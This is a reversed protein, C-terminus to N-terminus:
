TYVHVWDVYMDSVGGSPALDLRRANEAALDLIFYFPEGSHQMANHAVVKAGDVYYETATPTVRVGYTHWALPFDVFGPLVRCHTQGGSSGSGRTWNTTTRCTNAPDHGYLEAIDTESSTISRPTSAETSMAWFAPWTGEGPAGLIRAEFYGYQASFGTVGIRASALLGGDYTRGWGSRDVEGPSFPQLRLRLYNQDLTAVTGPTREPAAFQASGFETGGSTVDVKKTMYETGVGRDSASVPKTFEEAFRLTMGAPASGASSLAIGGGNDLQAYLARTSAPTTIRVAFPGRPLGSADFRLVARGASDAVATAITAIVGSRGDAAPVWAAATATAGAAVQVVVTSM